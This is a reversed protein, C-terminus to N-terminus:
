LKYNGVEIVIGAAVTEGNKRLMIRGLDKNNKYTEL